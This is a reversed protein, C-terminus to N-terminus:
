DADQSTRPQRGPKIAYSNRAIYDVFRRGVAAGDREGKLVFYLMSGPAFHGKPDCM